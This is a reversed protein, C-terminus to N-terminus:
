NELSQWHLKVFGEGEGAIRNVTQVFWFTRPDSRLESWRKVAKLTIIKFCCRIREFLFVYQFITRCQPFWKLLNFNQSFWYLFRPHTSKWSSAFPFFIIPEETQTKEIGRYSMINSLLDSLSFFKLFWSLPCCGIFNGGKSYSPVSCVRDRLTHLQASYIDFIKRHICPEVTLVKWLSWLWIIVEQESRISPSKSTRGQYFISHVKSVNFPM